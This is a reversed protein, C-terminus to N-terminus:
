KGQPRVVVTTEAPVVEILGTLQRLVQEDRYFFNSGNQEREFLDLNHGLMDKIFSLRVKINLLYSGAPVEECVIENHKEDFYAERAPDDLEFNVERRVAARLAAEYDAAVVIAEIFVVLEGEGPHEKYCVVGAVHYNRV